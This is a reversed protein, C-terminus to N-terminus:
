GPVSVIEVDLESASVLSATVLCLKEAKELLRKAREVDAGETLTLRAYHVIKTFRPRGDVKGLEGESFVALDKFELARARAVSRFTLILCDAAAAVLMTEPSWLDGPGDFEVPPASHLPPLGESALLVEGLPGGSAQIRYHHPLPHM